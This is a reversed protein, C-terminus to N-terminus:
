LRNRNSCNETNKQGSPTNGGNELNEFRVEDVINRIIQFGLGHSEMDGDSAIYYPYNEPSDHFPIGEDRFSLVLDNPTITGKIFVDGPQCDPYAHELINEFAEESAIELLYLDTESLGAITGLEHIYGIM